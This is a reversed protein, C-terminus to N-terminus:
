EKIGLILRFQTINAFFSADFYHIDQATKNIFVEEVWKKIDLSMQKLLEYAITKKNDDFNEFNINSLDNALNEFSNGMDMFEYTLHLLGALYNLMKIFREITYEDIEMSSDLIYNLDNCYDILEAIEEENIDNMEFFTKDNEMKWKGNEMKHFM